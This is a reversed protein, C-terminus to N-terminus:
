VVDSLTNWGSMLVLRYKCRVLTNMYVSRFTLKAAGNSPPKEPFDWFCYLLWSHIVNLAFGGELKLFNWLNKTKKNEGENKNTNANNDNMNDNDDNHIGAFELDSDDEYDFKESNNNNNNSNNVYESKERRDYHRVHMSLPTLHFSKQVCTPPQQRAVVFVNLSGHSGEKPVLKFPQSKLNIRM